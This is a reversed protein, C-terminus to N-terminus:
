SVFRSFSPNRRCYNWYKSKYTNWKSRNKGNRRSDSWGYSEIPYSSSTSSSSPSSPTSNPNQAKSIRQNYADLTEDPHKTYDIQSTQPASIASTTKPPILQQPASSSPALNYGSLKPSILGPINTATNQSSSPTPVIPTNGTHLTAYPSNQPNIVGSGALTLPDPINKPLGIIGKTAPTSTQVLTSIM